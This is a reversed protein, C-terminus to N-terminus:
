MVSKFNVETIKTFCCVGVHFGPYFQNSRLKVTYLELSTVLAISFDLETSGVSEM